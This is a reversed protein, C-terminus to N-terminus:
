SLLGTEWFPKLDLRCKFLRRAPQRQLVPAHPTAALVFDLPSAALISLSGARIEAFKESEQHRKV